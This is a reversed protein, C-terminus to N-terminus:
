NQILLWKVLDKPEAISWAHPIRFNNPKRYGKNETTILSVKKSGMGKLENTMAALDFANMGMYDVGMNLWWIVDPETYLRIPTNVLPKIAQQTTDNFSYPSIRHYNAPVEAPTGGMETKIRKLLYNREKQVDGENSHLRSERITINYMREFDLPADIAFAASPKFPYNNSLALETYKLACTGGISFGGVYFRQDNLKHKKAVHNLMELFSAQTATDIGFSSIGTRFTPIITLIGQQAAYEPLETQMLVDQPREFMGPILFM